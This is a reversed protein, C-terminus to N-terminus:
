FGMKIQGMKNYGIKWKNVSLKKRKKRRKNRSLVFKKRREKRQISCLNAVRSQLSVGIWSSQIM